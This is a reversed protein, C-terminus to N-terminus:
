QQALFQPSSYWMNHEISYQIDETFAKNDNDCLWHKGSKRLTVRLPPKQGAPQKICHLRRAVFTADGTKSVHYHTLAENYWVACTFEMAYDKKANYQVWVHHWKVTQWFWINFM